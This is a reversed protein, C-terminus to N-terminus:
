GGSTHGELHIPKQKRHLGVRPWSDYEDKGRFTELKEVSSLNIVPEQTHTHLVLWSGGTRCTNYKTRLIFQNSQGRTLGSDM